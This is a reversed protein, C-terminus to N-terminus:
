RGARGEARGRRWGKVFIRAENLGLATFIGDTASYDGAGLVTAIEFRYRTGLNDGPAWEGVKLGADEAWRIMETKTWESM